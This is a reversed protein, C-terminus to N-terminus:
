GRSRMGQRGRKDGDESEFSSINIMICPVLFGNENRSSQLNPCNCSARNYSGRLCVLYEVKPVLVSRLHCDMEYLFRLGRYRVPM